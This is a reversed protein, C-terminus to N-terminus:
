HMPAGRTISFYRMSAEMMLRTRERREDRARDPLKSYTRDQVKVISYGRMNRYGQAYNPPRVSENDCIRTACM